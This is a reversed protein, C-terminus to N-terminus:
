EPWLGLAYSFLPEVHVGPVPKAPEEERPQFGFETAMAAMEPDIGGQTYRFAWEYPGEEWIIAWPTPNIGAHGWDWNEVLLPEAYGAQITARHRKKVADLVAEAKKRTIHTDTM